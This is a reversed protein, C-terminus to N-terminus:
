QLIKVLNIHFNFIGLHIISGIAYCVRDFINMNKKAKSHLKMLNKMREDGKGVLHSNGIWDM